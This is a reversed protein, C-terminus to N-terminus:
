HEKMTFCAKYFNLQTVVEEITADSPEKRFKWEVSNLRKLALEKLETSSVLESLAKASEEPTKLTM